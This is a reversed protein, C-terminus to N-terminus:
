ENKLVGRLVIGNIISNFFEESVKKKTFLFLEIKRGIKKEFVRLNPRKSESTLVGIDIDSKSTDEGRSYSGFLVVAGHKYYEYLFEALGSDYVKRLNHLIKEQRYKESNFNARFMITNPGKRVEIIGKKMLPIIQKRVTNPSIRLKRAAERIHTWIEPEDFVLSTIDGKM